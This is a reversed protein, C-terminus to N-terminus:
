LSSRMAASRAECATSVGYVKRCRPAVGRDERLRLLEVELPRVCRLRERKAFPDVVAQAGGPSARPPSQVRPIPAGTGESAAPPRVAVRRGRSCRRGPVALARPARPTMVEPAAERLPDTSASADDPCARLAWTRM